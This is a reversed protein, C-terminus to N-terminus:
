ADTRRRRAVRDVPYITIEENIYFTTGPFLYRTRVKEVHSVPGEYTLDPMGLVGKECGVCKSQCKSCTIKGESVEIQWNVIPFSKPAAQSKCWLGIIVCALVLTVVGVKRRWGKFFERM